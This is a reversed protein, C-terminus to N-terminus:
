FAIILGVSGEGQVLGEDSRDRRRSRKDTDLDTWYGRAELRLGINEAFFVKVGGGLSASFRDDTSLNSFQPDIRTVGAAAAVFPNVQGAGWSYLLGAQFTTLEVDGLTSTQTLLGRDAVFETSQRNALLEIQWTPSLPIDLIVGYVPSEDVKVNLNPDFATTNSTDFDGELRYGAVPTLEFRGSQGFAAAPLLFVLIALARQM